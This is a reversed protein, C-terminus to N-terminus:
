NSRRRASAHIPTRHGGRQGARAAPCVLTHAGSEDTAQYATPPETTEM